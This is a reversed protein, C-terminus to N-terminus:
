SCVEYYQIKDAISETIDRGYRDDRFYQQVTVARKTSADNGHREQISQNRRHLPIELPVEQHKSIVVPGDYDRPSDEYNAYCMLNKDRKDVSLLDLNKVFEPTLPDSGYFKLTDGLIFVPFLPGLFFEENLITRPSELSERVGELIYDPEVEEEPKRERLIVKCLAVIEKSLKNKAKHM